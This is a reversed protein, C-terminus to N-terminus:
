RKDDHKTMGIDFHHVDERVGLKGYLAIAADDGPDAQVFVVYVGRSAVVRKAEAILATAIGRRRHAADVALDYIYFESRAQECKPLVYGALGGVIAGDAWAAVAVFTDSALLRALYADDPQRATYTPVDDFARGFVALLERLALVDHAAADLARIRILDTM